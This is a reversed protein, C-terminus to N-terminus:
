SNVIAHSLYSDGVQFNKDRSRLNYDHTYRSQGRTAHEGAYESALQLKKGLEQLCALPAKAM